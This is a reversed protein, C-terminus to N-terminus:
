RRIQALPLCAPSYGLLQSEGPKRVGVHKPCGVWGAERAKAYGHRRKRRFELYQLLPPTQLAGGRNKFAKEAAFATGRRGVDRGAM